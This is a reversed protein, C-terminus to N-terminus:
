ELYMSIPQPEATSALVVGVLLELATVSPRQELGLHAVSARYHLKTSAAVKGSCPDM